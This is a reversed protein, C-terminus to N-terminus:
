RLWREGRDREFAQEAADAEDALQACWRGWVFGTTAGTVLGLFAFFLAEENITGEMVLGPLCPLLCGSLAGALGYVLADECEARRLIFSVPLGIVLMGLAAIGIGVFWAILGAILAVPVLEWWGGSAALWLGAVTFCAGTAMGGWVIAPALGDSRYAM